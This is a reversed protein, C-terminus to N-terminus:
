KNRRLHELLVIREADEESTTEAMDLKICRFRTCRQDKCEKGDLRCIM